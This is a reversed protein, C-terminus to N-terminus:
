SRRKFLSLLAPVFDEDTRVSVSDVHSHVFADQM